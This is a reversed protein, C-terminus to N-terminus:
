FFSLIRMGTKKVEDEDEDVKQTRFKNEILQKKFTLKM